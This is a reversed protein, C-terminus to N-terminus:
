NDQVTRWVPVLRIELTRRVEKIIRKLYPKLLQTSTRWAEPRSWDADPFIGYDEEEKTAFMYMNGLYEFDQNFVSYDGTAGLVDVIFLKQRRGNIQMEIRHGYDPDNYWINNVLRGGCNINLGYAETPDGHVAIYGKVFADMEKVLLNLKPTASAFDVMFYSGDSSETIANIQAFRKKLFSSLQDMGLGIVKNDMNM